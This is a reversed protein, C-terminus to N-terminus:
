IEVRMLRSKTSLGKHKKKDTGPETWLDEHFRPKGIGTSNINRQLKEYIRFLSSLGMLCCRESVGSRGRLKDETQRTRKKSLLYEWSTSCESQKQVKRVVMVKVQVPPAFTSSMPNSQLCSDRASRTACLPGGWHKEKPKWFIHPWLQTHNAPWISMFRPERRMREPVKM